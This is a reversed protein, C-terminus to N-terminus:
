SSTRSKGFLGAEQKVAIPKGLRQQILAVIDGWPMTLMDISLGVTEVPVRSARLGSADEECPKDERRVILVLDHSVGFAGQRQQMEAEFVSSWHVITRRWPHGVGRRDVVIGTDSVVIYPGRRLALRAYYLCPLGAIVIGMILAFVSHAAIGREIGVVALVAFLATAPITLRRNFGIKVPEHM